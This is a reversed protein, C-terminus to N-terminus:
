ARTALTIFPSQTASGKYPTVAANRKPQGDTRLIFRFTTEDTLFLVHISSAAELGGKEIMKYQGFNGFIIDGVTGLTECQEIPNIPKGLLTGNPAGALSNSPIFLPVGGVGVAVSLEFLQTWCDQNIFWQAGPLWAAGMRAYMKEVNQKLITAANQGGEKAVSVTGAHGLIGLPMGAGTGRIIADDIKFSFEEAFAKTCTDELASADKLEEDTAYYLGTLKQLNLEMQRFKPKSATLAAAEGTWYAQVGGWRSGNARSTEDIVNQRLGNANAGIPTTDTLGALMAAKHVEVMLESTFDTQVLFGGDSQVGESLGSAAAQIEALGPHIAGGNQKAIAANAVAQLQEGLSKFPTVKKVAETDIVPKTAEVAQATATATAQASAARAGDFFGAQAIEADISEISARLTASESLEEATMRRDEAAAKEVLAIGKEVIGARENRLATIRDM